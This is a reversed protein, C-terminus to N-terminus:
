AKATSGRKCMRWCKALIHFVSCPCCWPGIALVLAMNDFRHKDRKQLWTRLDMVGVVVEGVLSFMNKMEITVGDLFFFM